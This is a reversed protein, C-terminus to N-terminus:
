PLSHLSLAIRLSRITRCLQGYSIYYIYKGYTHKKLYIKTLLIYFLLTLHTNAKFYNKTCGKYIYLLNIIYFKM